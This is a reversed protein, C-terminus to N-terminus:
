KVFRGKAGRKAHRAKRSHKYLVHSLLLVLGFALVLVGTLLLKPNYLPAM